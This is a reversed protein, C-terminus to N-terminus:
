RDGKLGMLAAAFPNDPDIKKEARPPKASFSKGGARGGERGGDKGGPKGASKGKPGGSRSPKGGRTAGGKGRPRDSGTKARPARGWTFTFFAEMEPTAADPANTEPAVTESTVTESTVTASDVTDDTVTENSVTEPAVTEDSVTESAVIESAVTDFAVTASTDQESTDAGGDQAPTQEIQGATAAEAGTEVAPKVKPRTGEVARYGLGQMLDAFQVLTMGTISLMDPKAEFGGRSDEARLMDALRELMDIRIARTGANRYGAMTDAGAPLASDVPITVLGPPPSEPFTDFGQVLSWLVLRLRTPAPKLLLPMFITFQGFRIGHKRLAGRADQDLSKVEDAIQARPLVGLNEVMRFAFGRALGTLAEDRSLALL